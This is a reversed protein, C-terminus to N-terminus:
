KEGNEDILETLSLQFPTLHPYLARYEDLTTGGVQLKNRLALYKSKYKLYKSQYDM